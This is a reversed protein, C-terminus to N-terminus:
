RTSLDKNPRQLAAAAHASVLIAYFVGPVIGVCLAAACALVVAWATVIVAAVLNWAQFDRRVGRAAGALDLMDRPDGTAAFRSTAHPMHVLALMGWPLALLLAATVHAYFPDLAAGLLMGLPHWLLAFPLLTLLVALAAWAGDALLRASFTWRPPGDGPTQEAARTAAVAYGLLPLLGVPLVLVALLGIAWTAAPRNRFPWAFSDAIRTVRCVM